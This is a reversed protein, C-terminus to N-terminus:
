SVSSDSFFRAVPGERAPSQHPRVHKSYSLFDDLADFQLAERDHASGGRPMRRSPLSALQQRPDWRPDAGGTPPPPRSLRHVREDTRPLTPPLGSSFLGLIFHPYFFGEFRPSLVGASLPHSRPPSAPSLHACARRWAECKTSNRQRKRRQSDRQIRRRLGSPSTGQPPWLAAMSNEPPIFRGTQPPQRWGHLTVHTSCGMRSVSQNYPM